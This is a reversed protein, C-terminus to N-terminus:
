AATAPRCKVNPRFPNGPRSHMHRKLRDDDSLAATRIQLIAEAPPGDDWFKESGKVRYGVEKVLSEMHASTMPLGERRYRPYDMRSQNNGFYTVAEALVRRPDSEECDQPPAGIQQQERHMEELMKEVCGQWCYSAWRVYTEWTDDSNEGVAKAAEHVREMAHPFDLIATFTPFHRKQITWNYALGDGVFARKQAQFFGRSEAEAEMMRGFSDSGCLSSLCTRFLREPRWSRLDSKPAALPDFDGENAVGSLLQKMYRRDAFCSPLDPHPDDEFQVGTMRMFLANKTERWHPQQVGNPGGHFRTQMRGGDLSVGALPIPTTPATPVRPLPQNFHTATRTDREEELEGGIWVVLNRLHRASISIEATDQLAAAALEYAPHRAVCLM